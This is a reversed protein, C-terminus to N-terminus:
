KLQQRKLEEESVFLGHFGFPVRQPLPVIAVIETMSAANVVWFESRNANADYVFTLLYGDDESSANTKPVFVPEGGFKNPGYLFKKVITRKDLDVKTIGVTSKHADSAGQASAYAAAYTYRTKRGVLNPHIRPFEMADGPFLNREVVENTSLDLRWEVLHFADNAFEKDFQIEEMRCSFLVITNGEEWANVTHFVYCPPIRFWKIKDANTAYRDLVGIRAGFKPEFAIVNGKVLKNKDFVLPLDLFVAYHETIAWDHMMVPRPLDLPMTRVLEGSKDIYGYRAYPAEMFHYSFFFMEGTEPDVKPHATMAKLRGDYSLRAGTEFTGDMLVRIATPPDSEVLAQLMDNHYILATNATGSEPVLGFLRKVSSFIIKLLGLYGHLEGIRLHLIRGAQQEKKFIDTRVYRNVYTATGDPFLRVGHLMGDGDFWHYGGKPVLRPNPGNRVYEGAIDKPLAGHSVPIHSATLEEKVPAYNESLYPDPRPGKYFFGQLCDLATDIPNFVLTVLLRVLVAFVSKLHHM